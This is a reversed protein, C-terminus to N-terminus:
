DEMGRWSRRKEQQEPSQDANPFIMLNDAMNTAAMCLGRMTAMYESRNTFM